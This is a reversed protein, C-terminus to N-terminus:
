KNSKPHNTRTKRLTQSADEYQKNPIARIKQHQHEQSYLEM